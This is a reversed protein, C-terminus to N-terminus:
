ISGGGTWRRFDEFAEIGAQISRETLAQREDEDLAPEGSRTGPQILAQAQRLLDDAWANKVFQEPDDDYLRRAAAVLRAASTASEPRKGQRVEACAEAAANWDEARFELAASWPGPVRVAAAVVDIDKEHATMQHVGYQDLWEERLGAAEVPFHTDLIRACLLIRLTATPYKGGATAIEGEIDSTGQALFDRLANAYAPGLARCGWADAFIESSWATWDAARAGGPTGALDTGIRAATTDRWGFDHEVAHGTEHAVVPLDPLHAVQYWPVGIIPIPLRELIDDYTRGALPEGPVAEAPFAEDRSLAFPSLGGNLFVLPPERRVAGAPAAASAALVPRYCAWALEDALQLFGRLEADRRQVLKSRFFEWIRRIGLVLSEINRGQDLVSGNARSQELLAATQQRLGALHGTVARVQTHHKEFAQDAETVALWRSFESSLATLKQEIGVAKREGLSAM